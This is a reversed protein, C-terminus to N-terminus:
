SPSPRTATGSAPRATARRLTTRATTSTRGTTRAMCRSGAPCTARAALTSGFTTTTRTRTPGVSGSLQVVHVVKASEQQNVSYKKTGTFTPAEDAADDIDIDIEKTDKDKHGDTATVTITFEDNTDYDLPKVGKALDATAITHIEYKWETPDDTPMADSLKFLKKSAADLEVTLKGYPHPSYPLDDDQVTFEAVKQM